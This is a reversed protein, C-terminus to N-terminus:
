VGELTQELITTEGTQTNISFSIVIYNLPYAPKYQFKVEIVSPDSTLQRAKLDNYAAILGSDVSAELVGAVVSKVRGPSEEDIWTGILGANEVTQQMTTVLNDRARVLSAERTYINTPDTTVGHRVVMRSDRTLETVAVGAQSWANKNANTMSSMVTAPFGSLGVIQKKTLPNQVVLGAMRGAYAAALYYGSIEHTTNSLGHSYRVRNPYALVVRSSAVAAALDIPDVDVVLDYGLLGMRFIGSNVMSTIHGRLDTGVGTTDGPDLDDGAIGVPLPVVLDVDLINITKAYAATLEDRTVTAGADGTTAVLLLVNAGNEFAFNAAFSLPSIVEGTDRDVPPGYAAQVDDFDFVRLPEYYNIDTYQYSVFVTENAAIAGGTDRVVSTTNDPVTGILGDEGAEELLTYDDPDIYPTGDQATVVVTGQDIGLNKLLITDSTFVITETATRYGIAPGAIAVVSPRVGIINVLASVDEEVYVGPPQYVTFDPM